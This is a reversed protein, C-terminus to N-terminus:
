RHVRAILAASLHSPVSIEEVIAGLEKFKKAANKVCEMVRPDMGTIEGGEKLIGIRMPRMGDKAPAVGHPSHHEESGMPFTNDAVLLLSNSRRAGELLSPYNPVKSPLPTGPGQRDDIGDLGAIM